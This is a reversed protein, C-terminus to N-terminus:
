KQRYLFLISHDPLSRSAVLRFKGSTRVFSVLQQFSNQAQENQFIHGQDGTKLLYWHYYLATKPSFEIADGTLAWQRMTTPIVPSKLFKGVYQLTHVNIQYQNPMVNLYVPLGKDVKAIESLTWSQGWDSAEPNAPLGNTSFTRLGVGLLKMAQCISKPAPIPYPAYNLLIFQISATALLFAFAFRIFIGSQKSWAAAFAAGTYIAPAILAPMAYRDLPYAWSLTSILILGGISSATVLILNRHIKPAVLLLSGIFAYLLIPSMMAPLGTLYYNIVWDVSLSIGKGGMAHTNYDALKKLLPYTVFLWPASM